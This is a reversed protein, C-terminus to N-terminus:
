IKNEWVHDSLSILPINGHESAKRLLTTGNWNCGHGGGINWQDMQRLTWM